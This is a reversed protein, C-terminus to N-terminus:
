VARARTPTPQLAFRGRHRPEGMGVHDVHELDRRVVLPHEDRHLVDAAAGQPAPQGRCRPPPALDDRDHDLRAAPEGGGMGGLEHVAVELGLVDEDTFVAPRPDAVEAEGAGVM